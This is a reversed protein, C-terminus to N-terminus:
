RSTLFHSCDRHVLSKVLHRKQHMVALVPFIASPRVLAVWVTLGTQILGLSNDLFSLTVVLLFGIRILECAFRVAPKGGFRLVLLQTFFHVLM